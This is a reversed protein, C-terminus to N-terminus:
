RSVYVDNVKSDVLSFLSAGTAICKVGEFVDPDEDSPLCVTGVYDSVNVNAPKRLRM